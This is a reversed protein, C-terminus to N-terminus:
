LAQIAGQHNAEACTRFMSEAGETNPLPVHVLSFIFLCFILTQMLDVFMIDTTKSRRIHQPPFLFHVKGGGTVLNTKSHPRPKMWIVTIFLCVVTVSPVHHSSCLQLDCIFLHTQHRYQSSFISQNISQNISLIVLCQTDSINLQPHNEKGHGHHNRLSVPPLVAPTMLM